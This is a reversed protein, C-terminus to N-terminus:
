QICKFKTCLKTVTSNKNDAEHMVHSNASDPL